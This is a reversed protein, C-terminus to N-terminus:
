DAKKHSHVVCNEGAEGQVVFAFETNATGGLSFVAEGSSASSTTRGISTSLDNAYHAFVLRPLPSGEGNQVYVTISVTSGHSFMLSSQSFRADFAAM